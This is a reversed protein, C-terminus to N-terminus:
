VFSWSRKSARAAATRGSKGQPPERTSRGGNLHAARPARPARPTLLHAPNPREPPKYPYHGPSPCAAKATAQGPAQQNM